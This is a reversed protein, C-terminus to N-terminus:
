AAFVVFQVASANSGHGTSSFGLVAHWDEHRAWGGEKAWRGKQGSAEGPQQALRFRSLERHLALMAGVTHRLEAAAAAVQEQDAAAAAAAGAAAGGDAAAAAPAAATNAATTGSALQGAATGQQRTGGTAVGAGGGATSSGQSHLARHVAAALPALTLMGDLCVELLSLAVQVRELDRRSLLHAAQGQAGAHSAAVAGRGSSVGAGGDSDILDSSDVDLQQQAQQQQQGQISLMSHLADPDSLQRILVVAHRLVGERVASGHAGGALDSSGIGGGQSAGSASSAAGAPAASVAQGARQHQGAPRPPRLNTAASQMSSLSPRCCGGAEQWGGAEVGAAAGETCTILLVLHLLHPLQERLVAHVDGTSGPQDTAAAATAAAGAGSTGAFAEGTELAPILPLTITRVQFLLKLQELLVHALGPPLRALLQPQQVLQQRWLRYARAQRAGPLRSLAEAFLQAAGPHQVLDPLHKRLLLEWLWAHQLFASM